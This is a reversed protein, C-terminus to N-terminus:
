FRKCCINYASESPILSSICSLISCICFPQQYMYPFTVAIEWPQTQNFDDQLTKFASVACVEKYFVDTLKKVCEAEDEDRCRLKFNLKRKINLDEWITLFSILNDPSLYCIEIFDFMAM